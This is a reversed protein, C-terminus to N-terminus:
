KREEIKGEAILRKTNDDDPMFVVKGFKGVEHSLIVVKKFVPKVDSPNGQKKDM